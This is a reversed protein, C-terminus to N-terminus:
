GYIVPDYDDYDDKTVSKVEMFMKIYYLGYALASYRDKDIKKTIQKVTFSSTRIENQVLKLNSIEDILFTTNLCAQEILTKDKDDTFKELIKDPLEKYNVLIRLKESEVASQFNIIIDSNIGQACLDYIMRIAMPDEPTQNTNITRFCGLEEGTDPDKTKRCMEELLGKGLGNGDIVIAKVRSNLSDRYDGGYKKFLRKIIISQETFNLGNPPVVINVLDIKYITRDSNRIIKLIDICTKNAVDSESRAVDVAIIYENLLFKGNIDKPCELEVNELTRIKFLSDMRVLAGDAAGVWESEYNQAFAVANQSPDNKISMIQEKTKGRGYACPLEWSAGLVFSGKMNVMDKYMKQNRVYEDSGKYGTTTVFIFQFNPEVPNSISLEGVTRRPFAPIPEIVDNFLTNNLLAAEEIIIRHRRQGKSSQQNALTNFVSNNRFTIEATQKTIKVNKEYVENLLLPYARTLEGWKDRVLSAANEKTQASMSIQTGPYFVCVHIISMMEIMTKGFGRPFCGYISYFRAMIRLFLRQDLDLRIGGTKPKIYDYWLDPNWRFYQCVFVWKDVNQEFLNKGVNSNSLKKGDDKKNAM